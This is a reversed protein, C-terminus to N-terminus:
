LTALQWNRGEWRQDTKWFFTFEVVRASPVNSTALDTFWLDFSENFTMEVSNRTSWGDATWIIAAEADLIVRLTKGRPLRRIPHNLTWIEHRSPVPKAVFRQYAPEIRDFCVGEHRSRVLSVYEAHSWCLPMAAGTPLGRKMKGDPLDDDDWLQESIM